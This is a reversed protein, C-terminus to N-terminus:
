AAHLVDVVPLHFANRARRAVRLRRRNPRERVALVIADYDTTRLADEIALIPDVDGVEGDASPDIERMWELGNVLRRRAILHAESEDWALHRRDPMTPVVLHFRSGDGGTRDRVFEKLQTSGVMLDSVVLYRNMIRGGM